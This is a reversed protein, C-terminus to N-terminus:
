EDFEMLILYYLFWKSVDLDESKNNFMLLFKGVLYFVGSEFVIIKDLVGDRDVLM